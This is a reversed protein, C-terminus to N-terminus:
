MNYPVDVFHSSTSVKKEKKYINNIEDHLEKIYKLLSSIVKSRDQKSKVGINECLFDVFSSMSRFRRAHDKENGISNMYRADSNIKLATQLQGNASARENKFSVQRPLNKTSLYLLNLKGLLDNLQRDLLPSIVKEKEKINLEKNLIYNYSTEREEKDQMTRELNQHSLQNKFNNLRNLFEGIPSDKITTSVEIQKKVELDFNIAKSKRKFLRKFFNEELIESKASISACSILCWKLVEGAQDVTLFYEDVLTSMSLQKSILTDEPTFKQRGFAKAIILIVEDKKAMIVAIKRNKITINKKIVIM